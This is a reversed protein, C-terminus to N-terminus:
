SEETLAMLYGLPHTRIRLFEQYELSRQKLSLPTPLGPEDTHLPSHCLGSPLPWPPPHTWKGSLIVQPWSLDSGRELFAWGGRRARGAGPHPSPVGPVTAGPAAAAGFGHLQSRGCGGGDDDGPSGPRSGVLRWSLLTGSTVHPRPPLSQSTVGPAGPTRSRMQHRVPTSHCVKNLSSERSRFFRFPRRCLFRNYNSKKCSSDLFVFIGFRAM